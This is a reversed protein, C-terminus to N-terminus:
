KDPVYLSQIDTNHSIKATGNPVPTHTLKDAGLTAGTSSPPDDRGRRRADRKSTRSNAPLFDAGSSAQIIIIVVSQGYAINHPDLCYDESSHTSGQAVSIGVDNLTHTHHVELAALSRRNGAPRAPSVATISSPPDGTVEPTESAADSSVARPRRSRLPAPQHTGLVRTLFTVVGGKHRASARAPSVRSSRPPQHPRNRGGKYRRTPHMKIVLFRRARSRRRGAATARMPAQRAYARSRGCHRRKSHHRRTFRGGCYFLRPHTNEAM